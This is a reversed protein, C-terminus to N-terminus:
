SQIHLTLVLNMRHLIVLIDKPRRLFIVQPPAAASLELYGSQGKLKVGNLSTNLNLSRFM